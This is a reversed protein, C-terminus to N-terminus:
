AIHSFIHVTDSLALAMVLPIVIITVNNVAIGTLGMLGRTAGVCLTINILALLALRVNKFFFWIALIILMYSM